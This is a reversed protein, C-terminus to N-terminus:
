PKSRNKMMQGRGRRRLIRLLRRFASMNSRTDRTIKGPFKRKTIKLGNRTSLLIVIMYLTMPNM